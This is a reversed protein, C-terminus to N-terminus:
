NSWLIVIFLRLGKCMNVCRDLLKEIEAEHCHFESGSVQRHVQTISSTEHENSSVDRSLIIEAM